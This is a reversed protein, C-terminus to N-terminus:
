IVCLKDIYEEFQKRKILKHKGKEIIFKCGPQEILERIKNEGINSYLAAEEVTLNLKRWIPVYPKNKRTEFDMEDREIYITKENSMNTLGVLVLVEAVRM